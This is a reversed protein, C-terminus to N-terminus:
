CTYHSKEMYFLQWYKQIYSPFSRFNLEVAVSIMKDFFLQDNCNLKTKKKKVIKLELYNVM